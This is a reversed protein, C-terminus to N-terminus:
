AANLNQKCGTIKLLQHYVKLLPSYKRGFRTRVLATEVASVAYEFVDKDSPRYEKQTMKNSPVKISCGVEKLWETYQERVWDEAVAEADDFNIEWIHLTATEYPPGLWVALREGCYMFTFPGITWDHM